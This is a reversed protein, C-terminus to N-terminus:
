ICSVCMWVDICLCVCLNHLNCQMWVKFTQLCVNIWHIWQTYQAPAHVHACVHVCVCVCHMCVIHCMYAHVCVCECTLIHASTSEWKWAWECMFFSVGVGFCVCACVCTCSINCTHVCVCKSCIYYIYSLLTLKDVSASGGSLTDAMIDRLFFSLFCFLFFTSKPKM